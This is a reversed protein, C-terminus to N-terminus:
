RFDVSSHFQYETDFSGDRKPRIPLVEGTVRNCIWLMNALNRDSLFFDCSEIPFSDTPIKFVRSKEIPRDPGTPLTYYIISPIRKNVVWINQRVPLFIYDGPGAGSERAYLTGGPGGPRSPDPSLLPILSGVALGAVAGVLFRKM